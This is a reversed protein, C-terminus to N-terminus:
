RVNQKLCIKPLPNKARVHDIAVIQTTLDQSPKADSFFPFSPTPSLPLLTSMMVTM